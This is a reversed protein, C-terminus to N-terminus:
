NVNLPCHFYFVYCNVLSDTWGFQLVDFQDAKAPVVKEPLSVRVTLQRLLQLVVDM